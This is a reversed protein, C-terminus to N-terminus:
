NKHNWLLLELETLLERDYSTQFNKIEGSETKFNELSKINELLSNIRPFNMKKVKKHINSNELQNKERKKAEEILAKKHKFYTESDILKEKKERNLCDLQEVIFEVATQEM